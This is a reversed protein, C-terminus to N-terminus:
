PAHCMHDIRKALMKEQRLVGELDARARAGRVVERRRHAEAITRLVHACRALTQAYEVVLKELESDAFSLRRLDVALRDYQAALGELMAPEDGGQRSRKEIADLVPNV